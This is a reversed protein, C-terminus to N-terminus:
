KPKRISSKMDRRSNATRRELAQNQVAMATPADAAGAGAFGGAEVRSLVALVGFWGGSGGPRATSM